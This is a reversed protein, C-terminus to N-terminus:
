SKPTEFYRSALQKITSLEIDAVKGDARALALAERLFMRIAEEPFRV